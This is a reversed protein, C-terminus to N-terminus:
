WPKRSRNQPEASDTQGMPLRRDGDLQFGDLLWGAQEPSLSMEQGDKSPGEKDGEKPGNPKDEDEDDDGAGGPPMDPAPIRGKLQKLKEALEQNKDGAANAAAQMERISDVLKAICQEVTEVNQQADADKRRLEVTGKFDNESRQWKALAGGHTELARKVAKTAAKLEKRAGRGKIYSAVLKDLENGALAEDASHLADDTAETANRMRAATQRGGPGKKLEEAGQGFRVHGLNYLAPPQLRDTQSALASELFAEAERLKGQRLKTTGVNFFDRPTSPAPGEPEPASAPPATAALAAAGVLVAVVSSRTKAFSKSM